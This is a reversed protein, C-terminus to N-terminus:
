PADVTYVHTEDALVKRVIKNLAAAGVLTAGDLFTLEGAVRAALAADVAAAGAPVAATAPDSLAVNWGWSDAYSPVHAALPVVAPFVSALTAHICSFVQGASLVGAPGSQTVFVGGPALKKKIVGEYFERTYLHFCPGGSVPDALDGIIVDFAGDAAKELQAAADDVILTLRPDAFAAANAPLHAACFDCVVADIDVM